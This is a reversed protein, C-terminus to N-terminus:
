IVGLPAQPCEIHHWPKFKALCTAQRSYGREADYDEKLKLM